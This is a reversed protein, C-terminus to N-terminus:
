QMYAFKRIYITDSDDCWNFLHLSLSMDNDFNIGTCYVQLIAGYTTIPIRNIIYSIGPEILGTVPNKHGEAIINEIIKVITHDVHSLASHWRDYAEQYSMNHIEHLINQIQNKYVIVLAKYPLRIEDIQLQQDQQFNCISSFNYKEEKKIISTNYDIIKIQGKKIM